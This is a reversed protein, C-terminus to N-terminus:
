IEIRQLDASAAIVRAGKPYAGSEALWWKYVDDNRAFMEFVGPWTIPSPALPNTVQGLKIGRFYQRLVYETERKAVEQLTRFSNEGHYRYVYLPKPLYIPETLRILRMAMDWDHCYRLPAFAGAQALLTRSVFMNGTSIAMQRGLFGFSLSPLAALQRTLMRQIVSTTEDPDTKRGAHDIAQVATFIFRDAGNAARVCASIRTEIYRDDSNLFTVYQGQAAAIGDNLATHAGSNCAHRLFVTQEFRSKAARSQIFKRCIDATDDSSADDIVILEIRKYTQDLVSRLCEAVYPEHNFAPIIVSVLPQM